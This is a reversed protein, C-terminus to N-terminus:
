QKKLMRYYATLSCGAQRCAQQVSISRENRLSIAAAAREAPNSTRKATARRASAQKPKTEFKSNLREGLNFLHILLERVSLDPASFWEECVSRLAIGRDALQRNLAILETISNFADLSYVYATSGDPLSRAWEALPGGVTTHEEPLGAQRVKEAAQKLEAVSHLWPILVYTNSHM